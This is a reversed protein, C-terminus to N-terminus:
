AFGKRRMALILAERADSLAQEYGRPFRYVAHLYRHHIAMRRNPPLAEIASDMAKAIAMDLEECFEDFSKSTYGSCLGVSRAPYGMKIDGRRM